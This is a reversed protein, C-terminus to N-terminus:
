QLSFESPYWYDSEPELDGKPEIPSTERSLLGLSRFQSVTNSIFESHLISVLYEPDQYIENGRGQEILQPVDRDDRYSTYVLSLFTDPHNDILQECLQQISIGDSRHSLLIRFVTEYEPIASFRNRLFTATAPHTEHLPTHPPKADRLEPVTEIDSGRLTAVALRGQDTVDFADTILGLSQALKVMEGPEQRFPYEHREAIEDIDERTQADHNELALVPMLNNMPNAYRPLLVQSNTTSVLRRELQRRTNYLRDRMDVATPHSVEIGQKSVSMVGIGKSIAMDSIREVEDAHAALYAHDAGRQYSIAQGLGRRLHNQGKVEVAFVRDAPTFGLIDPKYGGIGIEHPENNSIIEAYAGSQHAGPVHVFFRYGNDSLWSVLSEFVQPEDM